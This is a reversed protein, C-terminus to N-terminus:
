SQERRDALMATLQTEAEAALAAGFEVDGDAIAEVVRTLVSATRALDQEFASAPSGGDAHPAASM